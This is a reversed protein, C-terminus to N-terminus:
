KRGRYLNDSKQLNYLERSILHIDTDDRVYMNEIIIDGSKHTVPQFTPIDSSRLPRRGTSTMTGGDRFMPLNMMKALRLSEDHPYIKTGVPLNVLQMGGVGLWALRGNPLFSLEPGEEGVWANGGPYYDTGKAYGTTRTFIQKITETISFKKTKPNTRNWREIADTGSDIKRKVNDMNIGTASSLNDMESGFNNLAKIGAKSAEWLTGGEALVDNSARAMENMALISEDAMKTHHKEVDETARRMPDVFSVVKEVLMQWRSKIEGTEWDITDVHEGAQDRAEALIKQHMEIAQSVVGDKQREAAAILLDAQEDTISGLDDRQQIIWKITENYQKEAEEIVADRQEISNKVVEAAQQATLTEANQKMRELILRQELEGDSMTMVATEKMENQLRSLEDREATTLTRKENAAKEIIEIQRAMNEEITKTQKRYGEEINQLLKEQEKKSLEDVGNMLASVTSLADNKNQEISAIVQNGMEEINATVEDTMDKTVTKGSWYIEDLAVKIGNELELFAGLAKKTAESVGEGFLDVAPLADQSLHHALAVGGATIGALGGVVSLTVPGGLAAFAASLGGAASTASGVAGTLGGIAGVISGIGSTLKGGVLLVPGIAAALGGMKVITEQTAPNLNSFWDAVEKVKEALDVLHPVLANGITIGADTLHNKAIEIQSATTQYRQEAEKTLANNEDWARNGLEIANTFVDSAGAARLLADRLRIETIGMDDLVKIASIGRKEASGLGQIFAIIASAADEKFAKKFEQASMGAVKAFDNLRKSNTEVALQMDVMVRSFASGGAEAEIGVSSLAGAFSMIQAETLGIQKGAGALRMGMSVIDAETTALNNGLAVITSGLRDFEKQSMQTINAFQALSSAAEEATLNTAEGLDIMVRTFSLINDTEIGLQGAAEAVESIATASAPIEKAMNRIGQELVALQKDTADVTKRVGAFASEFDISAKTAATGLGIIPLTVKTTLAKGAKEINQGAKTLSGEFKSMRREAKDLANNYKSADLILEAYVSGANIAM